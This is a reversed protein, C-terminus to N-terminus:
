VSRPGERERRRADKMGEQGADNEHAKTDEREDDDDASANEEDLAQTTGYKDLYLGQRKFNSVRNGSNTVQWGRSWTV